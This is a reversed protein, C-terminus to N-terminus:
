VIIQGEEQDGIAMHAKNIFRVGAIYALLSDFHHWTKMQDYNVNLNFKDSVVKSLERIHKEDRKYMTNDLELIVAQHKPYTEFVTMEMKELYDKLKMARATLGGLFMPSMAGLERDAVRYFYDSYSEKDVYKGPLSLPADLFVFKPKMLQLYKVIFKDADEQHKSARFRVMENQYYAIVTTGALKSGYDIGVITEMEM